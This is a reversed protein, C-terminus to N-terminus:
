RRSPKSWLVLGQERFIAPVRAPGPLEVALNLLSQATFDIRVLDADNIPQDLGSDGRGGRKVVQGSRHPKALVRPHVALGSAPCCRASRSAGLGPLIIPPATCSYAHSEGTLNLDTM